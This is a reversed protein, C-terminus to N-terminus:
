LSPSDPWSVEYSHCGCVAFSLPSSSGDLNVGACDLSIQVWHFPNWAESPQFVVPQEWRGPTPLQAVTPATPFKNQWLERGVTPTGVM